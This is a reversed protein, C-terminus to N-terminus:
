QANLWMRDGSIPGLRYTTIRPKFVTTANPVTASVNLSFEFARPTPKM